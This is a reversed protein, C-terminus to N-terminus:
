DGDMGCSALSLATSAGDLGLRAYRATAQRGAKVESGAVSERSDLPVSRKAFFASFCVIEVGAVSLSKDFVDTLYKSSRIKCQDGDLHEGLAEKAARHSAQYGDLTIKHPLRSQRGFARRFFAKAAAVDRKARLLFDVTKGENDVARYLYPKTRCYIFRNSPIKAQRSERRFPL